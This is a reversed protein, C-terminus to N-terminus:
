YEIEFYDIIINAIIEVRLVIVSKVLFKRYKKLSPRFASM